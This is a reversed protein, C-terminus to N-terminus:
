RSCFGGVGLVWRIALPFRGQCRMIQCVEYGGCGCYFLGCWIVLDASGWVVLYYYVVGVVGDGVYGSIWGMAREVYVACM